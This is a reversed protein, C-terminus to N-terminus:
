PREAILLGSGSFSRRLIQTMRPSLSNRWMRLVLWSMWQTWFWISTRSSKGQQTLSPCDIVRFGARTWYTRYKAYVTPNLYCNRILFRM